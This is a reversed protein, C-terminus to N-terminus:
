LRFFEKELCCCLYLSVLINRYYIFNNRFLMRFFKDFKLVIDLERKFIKIVNYIVLFIYLLNLEIFCIMKFLMIM